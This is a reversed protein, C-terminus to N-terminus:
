RYRKRLAARDTKTPSPAFMGNLSPYMISRPDGADHSLGLAHGLEHTYVRGDLLDAVAITSRQRGEHSEFVTLGAIPYALPNYIVTIDPDVVLESYVFVTFGLWENWAECAMGTLKATAADSTVRLPMRDWQIPKPTDGPLCEVAPAFASAPGQVWCVQLFESEAKGPWKTGPIATCSGFFVLALLLYKM